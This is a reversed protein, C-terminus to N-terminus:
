FLKIQEYGKAKAEKIKEFDKKNKAYDIRAVIIPLYEETMEIGIFKYNANRETNEYMCAKGTSGSGCFPDLVVAGKPAVLRVLYQMLETPKVTPHSNRRLSSNAGFERVTEQNNRICGDTAKSLTFEELGEDRDKKSAKACYFYRCASGEDKPAIYNSDKRSSNEKLNFTNMMSGKYKSFDSMTTKGGNSKTDPMNAKVEDSGDTIVNAPFRGHYEKPTRKINGFCSQNENNDYDGNTITFYEDGVRCEDINIGGVGYKLMNDAVTGEVPKRAMIIPEYAPKLCTGYGAYKNQAKREEYFHKFEQSCSLGNKMSNTNNTGVGKIVSGTRNDIGNKKDIALGVNQSKPFGSNGSIFAKGNRRVVFAGTETKLCYVKGVYHVNDLKHKNQLQTTNKKVNFYVCGKKYDIHSRINLSVVLAQFIDLREKNKSYFVECYSNERISGDGDMLGELLQLRSNYDWQLVDMTLERNPFNQRLWLSLSNNIYIVHEEKHNEKKAKKVYESYKINHLNLWDKLKNLTRPKSQSFMCANCDKHKYADTLWWGIIYANDVKLGNILQGALPLDINWSKKLECAEYRNFAREKPKRRMTVKAYVSHNKTILQDTNRNKLHVMDDDINYEFYEKPQYWSLLNTDKDRQLIKETKDLEYFYKWGKNTLVQTDSSYCGYLWMLTDRIEFGAEEIACAIRHFTRTGGFSLLYGGPKLVKFCKKWFEINYEIGTGDWTKGMFGKSLRAFSGDKGEKAPISDEKGFRKTISTLGYPPDTVIADISKEELTDLVEFSDGQYITYDNDQKYIKM